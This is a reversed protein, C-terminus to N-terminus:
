TNSFWYRFRTGWPLFSIAFVAGGIYAWTAANKGSDWSPEIWLLDYQRTHIVAILFCVASILLLASRL